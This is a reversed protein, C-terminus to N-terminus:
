YTGFMAASVSFIWAIIKWGLGGVGNLSLATRMCVAVITLFYKLGNYGQMPDKEEFLLRLCQIKLQCLGCTQLSLLRIFM